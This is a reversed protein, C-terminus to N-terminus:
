NCVFFQGFKNQLYRRIWHPGPMITLDIALAWSTYLLWRCLPALTFNIKGKLNNERQFSYTCPCHNHSLQYLPWKPCWLDTTRFWDDALKKLVNTYRNDHTNFLLQLWVWNGSRMRWEWHIKKQTQSRERTFCCGLTFTCFANSHQWQLTVLNTSFEGSQCFKLFLKAM